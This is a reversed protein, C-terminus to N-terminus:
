KLSASDWYTHFLCIVAHFASQVPNECERESTWNWISCWSISTQFDRVRASEMFYDRNKGCILWKSFKDWLLLRGELFFIWFLFCGLVKLRSYKVGLFKPFFTHGRCSDKRYYSFSLSWTLILWHKCKNQNYVIVNQSFYSLLALSSLSDKEWVFALFKLSGPLKGVSLGFGSLSQLIIYKPAHTQTIGNIEIFVPGFLFNDLPCIQMQPIRQELHHIFPLVFHCGAMM